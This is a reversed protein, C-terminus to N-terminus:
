EIKKLIGAEVNDKEDSLIGGDFFLEEHYATSEDSASQKERYYIELHDNHWDMAMGSDYWYFFGNDSIFSRHSRYHNMGYYHRFEYSFSDYKDKDVPRYTIGNERLFGAADFILGNDKIEPSVNRRIYVPEESKKRIYVVIEISNEAVYWLKVARHGGLKLKLNKGSERDKEFLLIYCIDAFSNRMEQDFLAYQMLIAKKHEVQKKM